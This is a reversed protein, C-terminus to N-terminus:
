LINNSEEFLAFTLQYDQSCEEVAMVAGQLPIDCRELYGTSLLKQYESSAILAKVQNRVIQLAELFSTNNSEISVPLKEM